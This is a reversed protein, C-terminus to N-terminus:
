FLNYRLRPYPSANRLIVLTTLLIRVHTNSISCLFYIAVLIEVWFGSSQLDATCSPHCSSYGSSHCIRHIKVLMYLSILANIAWLFGILIAIIGVTYTSIKHDSKDMLTTIGNLLGCSGMSPLGVAYFVSILFQFFFVFFFLMFNFSSDSRFAKYLPRFWCMFSLPSFLVFVLMSIGFTTGYSIDSIFLGLAGAMNLFLLLAYFIWLYYMTRVTKQYADPIEVSIDQYFCPGVCCKAPLPPWNNGTGATTANLRAERSQLENAKRELEEQRKQLDAAAAANQAGSAEYPPPSEVPQQMEQPQGFPQPKFLPPPQTPAKAEGGAAKVPQNSKEFPNYAGLNDQNGTPQNTLNKVSPDEFPNYDDNASSM